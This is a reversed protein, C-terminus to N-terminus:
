MFNEKLFGVKSACSKSSLWTLADQTITDKLYPVSQSLLMAKLSDLAHVTLQPPLPLASSISILRLLERM